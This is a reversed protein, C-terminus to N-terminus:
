EAIVDPVGMLEEDGKSVPEVIPVVDEVEAHHSEWIIVVVSEWFDIRLFHKMKEFGITNIIFVKFTNLSESRFNKLLISFFSFLIKFPTILPM